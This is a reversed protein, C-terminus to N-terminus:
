QPPIYNKVDQWTGMSNVATWDSYNLMVDKWTSFYKQVILKIHVPVLPKLARFIDEYRYDKNNDPSFVQVQLVAFGPQPNQMEDAGFFTVTCDSGTITDVTEKILGENLKRGKQFLSLLFTRRQELNGLGKFKFFNELETVKEISATRIFIDLSTNKIENFLLDLEMDEANFLDKFVLSNQLYEPFGKILDFKREIEGIVDLYFSYRPDTSDIYTKIGGQGIELLLNYHGAVVPANVNRSWTGDGNNILEYTNGDITYKIYDIM